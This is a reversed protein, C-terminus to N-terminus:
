SIRWENAFIIDKMSSLTTTDPILFKGDSSWNTTDKNKEYYKTLAEKPTTGMEKGLVMHTWWCVGWQNRLLIWYEKSHWWKILKQWLSM